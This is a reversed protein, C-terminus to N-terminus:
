AADVDAAERLAEVGVRGDVGLGMSHSSCPLPLGRDHDSCSMGVVTGGCAVCTSSPSFRACRRGPRASAGGHHGAAV